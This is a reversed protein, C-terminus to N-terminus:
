PRWGRGLNIDAYSLGTGKTLISTKIVSIDPPSEYMLKREYKKLIKESEPNFLIGYESCQFQALAYRLYEIYSADLGANQSTLFTYNTLNAQATANIGNGTITITPTQTYGSGPNIINIAIVAGNSITAYATAQVGNSLSPASITITPLQTYNSGQSTVNISSLFGTALGSYITTLDTDLTVENLFLKAMMKFPYNAQPLFYVALTGGNEGRNYNWNFPLTQINDVRGSGYYNRRTSFDMPYRLVDINFTSSEIACVNPLFYFEQGGILPMKIYTWYPILDTEIQKFDLLANLLMLGDTEQDGMVTQLNRAVIGSLYWSRQILTRATYAM